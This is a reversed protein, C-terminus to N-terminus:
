FEEENGAEGEGEGEDEGEDESEEPAAAKESLISSFKDIYGLSDVAEKLEEEDNVIVSNYRVDRHKKNTFSLKGEADRKYLTRPFKKSKAKAM